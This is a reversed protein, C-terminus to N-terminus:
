RQFDGMERVPAGNSGRSLDSPYVYTPLEHRDVLRGFCFDGHGTNYTQRPNSLSANPQMAPSSPTAPQLSIENDDALPSAPKMSPTKM